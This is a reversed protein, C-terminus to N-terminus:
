RFREGGASPRDLRRSGRLHRHRSKSAVKPQGFDLVKPIMMGGRVVEAQPKGTVMPRILHLDGLGDLSEKTYFELLGGVRQQERGPLSIVGHRLPRELDPAWFREFVSTIM